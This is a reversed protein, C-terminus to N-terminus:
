RSDLMLKIPKYSRRHIDSVGYKHLAAIHKETGYGVHSSFDYCSYSPDLNSMYNDRAIKAIISAASVCPISGDARIIAKAKPNDTFYNINGDIIIKDYDVTVSELAREFAIKISERLGLTDIENPHVWGLGTAIANDRIWKATVERQKKSLTKSDRLLINPPLSVIDFTDSFLVAGTVLPGAWCGRGVEDLGITLM